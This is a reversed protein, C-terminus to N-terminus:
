ECTSITVKWLKVDGDLSGSCVLAARGCCRCSSEMDCSCCRDCAAGGHLLALSKVAGGHGVLVALCSYPYGHAATAAGRRWVRVTRDASGSCVMDGAAALCLVAKAHGRLTGTAVMHGSEGATAEWVVVSRDCGGSYLVRGGVGLALANVASRHREMTSVLSLNKQGPHRRWAKVTKDASGTYVNGDPAAVVANIADDHAAAVSEACRLSPLRWVKLSRDWSVSYMHAGDPSLALATVADVHHVWTSKKHRRVEVYSGPLLFACLCDVTTPLVADLALHRRGELRGAHRWVRITSDQHSSVVGNGTAVLCKVSSDTVAVTSSSVENQGMAMDLPWLRIHGDSSAVYLSNGEGDVALGSVYSSHGRLTAICQYLCTSSSSSTQSIVGEESNLSMSFRIAKSSSCYVLHLKREKKAGEERSAADM